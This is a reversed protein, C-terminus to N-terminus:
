KEIVQKIVPIIEDAMKDICYIQKFIAHKRYQEAHEEIWRALVARREETNLSRNQSKVHEEALQSQNKMYEAMNFVKNCNLIFMKLAFALDDQGFDENVKKIFHKLAEVDKLLFEVASAKMAELDEQSLERELQEFIRLSTKKQKAM